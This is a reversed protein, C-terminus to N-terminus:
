GRRLVIVNGSVIRAGPGALFRIVEAIEGPELWAARDAAPMADRNAPTDIVTPAVANVTIGDAALEEALSRTLSVLASKAALYAAMGGAAGQAASASAVNVIAGGGGARLLPLAARVALFPITANSAWMRAWTEPDTQEVSGAAFGGALNALLDLRGEAAGVGAFFTGVAGPDGLDVTAASLAAHGGHRVRLREVDGPARVPVWVRWGDGLLVDVV